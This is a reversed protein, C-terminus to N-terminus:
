PAEGFESCLEGILRQADLQLETEPPLHFIDDVRELLTIQQRTDAEVFLADLTGVGRELFDEVIMSGHEHQEEPHGGRDDISDVPFGIGDLREGL